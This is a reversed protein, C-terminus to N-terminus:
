GDVDSGRASGPTDDEESWDPRGGFADYIEDSGLEDLDGCNWDGDIDMDDESDRTIRALAQGTMSSGAAFSTAIPAVHPRPVHRGTTTTGKSTASGLLTRETNALSSPPALTKNNKTNRETPSYNSKAPSTDQNDDNNHHHHYYDAASLSQAKSEFIDKRIEESLAEEQPKYAPIDETSDPSLSDTHSLSRSLEIQSDVNGHQQGASREGENHSSSPHESSKPSDGVLTTADDASSPSSDYERSMDARRARGARGSKRGRRVRREPFPELIATQPDVASDILQIYGEISESSIGYLGTCGRAELFDDRASSFDRHFYSALGRYYCCKATLPPFKFPSAAEVAKNARTYMRRYDQLRYCVRARTIMCDIQIELLVLHPDTSIPRQQDGLEDFIDKSEISDLAARNRRQEDTTPPPRPRTWAETIDRKFKAEKAEFDKRLEHNARHLEILNM